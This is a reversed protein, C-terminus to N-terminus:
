KSGKRSARIVALCLGCTTSGPKCEQIGDWWAKNCLSRGGDDFAHKTIATRKSSKRPSKMPCDVAVSAWALLGDEM